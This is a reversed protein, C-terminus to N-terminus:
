DLLWHYRLRLARELAALVGAVTLPTNLWAPLAVPSAFRYWGTLEAVVALAQPIQLVLAIVLGLWSVIGLRRSLGPRDRHLEARWREATGRAPVLQRQAGDAGVLHARRLGYTSWAVEIRAGDDLEFRSTGRQVRQQLGDRYLRVKEDWDFFDVDIDWRAGAYRIGMVTRWLFDWRRMPKLESGDGPREKPM